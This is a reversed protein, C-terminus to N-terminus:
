GQESHSKRHVVTVQFWVQPTVVGSLREVSWAQTGRVDGAAPESGWDLAERRDNKKMFGDIDSTSLTTQPGNSGRM